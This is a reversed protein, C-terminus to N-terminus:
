SLDGIPGERQNAIELLEDRPLEHLRNGDEECLITINFLTDNGGQFPQIIYYFHPRKENEGYDLKVECAECRYRCNILLQRKTLEGLIAEKVM